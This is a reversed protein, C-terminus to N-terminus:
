QGWIKGEVEGTIVVVNDLPCSCNGEQEDRDDLALM